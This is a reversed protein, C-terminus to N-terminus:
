PAIEVLYRRYQDKRVWAITPQRALRLFPPRPRVVFTLPMPTLVWQIGLEYGDGQARAYRVQGQTGQPIRRGTVRTWVLQGLKAQAEDHTFYQRPNKLL